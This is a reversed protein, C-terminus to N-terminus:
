NHMSRTTATTTTPCIIESKAKDTGWVYSVTHFKEWGEIDSEARIDHYALLDVAKLSCQIKAEPEGPHLKLLRIQNPELSTYQYRSRSRSLLSRTTLVRRKLGVYGLFTDAM